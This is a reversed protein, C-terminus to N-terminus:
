SARPLRLLRRMATFRDQVPAATINGKALMIGKRASRLDRYSETWYVLEPNRADLLRVVCGGRNDPGIEFQLPQDM